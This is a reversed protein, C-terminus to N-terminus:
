FKLCVCNQISKCKTFSWPYKIIDILKDEIRDVEVNRALSDLANEALCLVLPSIAGQFTTCPWMTQPVM